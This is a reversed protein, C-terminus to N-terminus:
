RAKLALLVLHLKAQAARSLFIQASTHTIRNYYGYPALRNPPKTNALFYKHVDEPLAFKLVATAVTAFERLQRALSKHSSATTSRLYTMPNDAMAITMFLLELWTLGAISHTQAFRCHSLLKVFPSVIAADAHKSIYHSLMSQSCKFHLAEFHLM